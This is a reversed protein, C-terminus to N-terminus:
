RGALGNLYLGTVDKQTLSVKFIRLEDLARPFSSKGSSDPPFSGITIGQPIDSAFDINGMPVTANGDTWIPIPSSTYASHTWPSSLAIPVADQYLTFLSNDGNYTMVLHVWRNISSDLIGETIIEKYAVGGPNTFGAHVKLKDGASTSYPEFELEILNAHIGEIHFLVQNPTKVEDPVNFWISVSYSHLSNFATNTSELPVKVPVGFLPPYGGYGWPDDFIGLYALSRIGKGYDTGELTDILGGIKENTNNDFPWYAILAKPEVSDSSIFGGILPISMDGVLNISKKCSALSLLSACIVMITFLSFNGKATKM